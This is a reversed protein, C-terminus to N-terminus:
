IMVELLSEMEALDSISIAFFHSPRQTFVSATKTITVKKNDLILSLNNGVSFDDGSYVFIVWGYFLTPRNSGGAGVCTLEMRDTYKHISVKVSWPYQKQNGPHKTLIVPTIFAPM